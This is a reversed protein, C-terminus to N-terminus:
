QSRSGTTFSWSLPAATGNVIANIDVRYTTNATLAAQPVLAIEDKMYGHAPDHSAVGDAYFTLLTVPSQTSTDTLTVDSVSTIASQRNTGWNYYNASIIFGASNCKGGALPNDPTTPCPGENGGFARPVETMGSTPWLVAHDLKLVTTNGAANYNFCNYGQLSAAGVKTLGPNLLPTRHYVGNIWLDVAEALSQGTAGGPGNAEGWALDSAEGAQENQASYHSNAHDPETHELYGMQGLKQAEEVLYQLHGTCGDSSAADLTIQSLGLTARYRNLEQIGAETDGGHAAPPYAVGTAAGGSGAAAGGSGGSDGSGGPATGGQGGATGAVGGLADGGVGPSGGLLAGAGAGATLSSGGVGWGGSGATTGGTGGAGGPQGTGAGNPDSGGCAGVSLTLSLAIGM